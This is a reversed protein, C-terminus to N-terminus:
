EEERLREWLAERFGANKGRVEEDFMTDESKFTVKALAKIRNYAEELDAQTVGGKAEVSSQVRPNPSISQENRSDLGMAPPLGQENYSQEDPFGFDDEQEKLLDRVYEEAQEPIATRMLESASHIVGVRHEIISWNISRAIHELYTGKDIGYQQAYSHESCDIVLIPYLGVLCPGFDGDMMTVDLASRVTDWGVICWGRAAKATPKIIHSWFDSAKVHPFQEQVLSTFMAGAPMPASRPPLLVNEFFLEHLMVSNSLSTKDNEIDRWEGSATAASRLREPDYPNSLKTMTENLSETAQEYLKWHDEFMKVSLEPALNSFQYYKPQHNQM